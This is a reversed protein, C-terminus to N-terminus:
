GRARRSPGDRLSDVFDAITRAFRIPDRAMPNHGTDAWEDLQADPISQAMQRGHDIPCQDDDLGHIVLTPIAIEPLMRRFDAKQVNLWSAAVAHPQAAEVLSIRRARERAEDAVEDATAGRFWCAEHGVHPSGSVLILGRMRIGPHGRLLELTVSVGMSWAVLVVPRGIMELVALLDSAFHELRYAEAEVPIYSEGRGRLDPTIVRLKPELLPVVTDWTRATGQIGHLLVIPAGAGLECFSIRGSSSEIIPM